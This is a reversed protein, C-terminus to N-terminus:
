RLKVVGCSPGTETYLVSVMFFSPAQSLARLDQSDTAAGPALFSPSSFLDAHPPLSSLVLLPPTQGLAQSIADPCVPKGCTPALLAGCRLQLLSCHPLLSAGPVTAPSSLWPSNVIGRAQVAWFRGGWRKWSQPSSIWICIGKTYPPQAGCSLAPFYSASLIFCLIATNSLVPQRAWPIDWVPSHPPLSWRRKSYGGWYNEPIYSGKHGSGRSLVRDWGVRNIDEFGQMSIRWPSQFHLDIPGPDKDFIRAVQIRGHQATFRSFSILRCSDFTLKELIKNSNNFLWVVM